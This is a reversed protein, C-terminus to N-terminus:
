ILEMQKRMIEFVIQIIAERDSNKLDVFEVGIINYKANTSDEIRVIKGKVKVEKNGNKILAVIEESVKLDKVSKLRMGGGSLDLLLADFFNDEKLCKIIRTIKVRVFNRRQIKKVKHPKSLKYVRVNGDIAKGLLKCDLKYVASEKVYTIISAVEGNQLMLYDSKYLPIDIFIENETISQVKSKYTINGRQIEVTDNISLKINEM